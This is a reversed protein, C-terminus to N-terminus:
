PIALVRQQWVPTPGQSGQQGKRQSSDHQKDPMDHQKWLCHQYITKAKMM